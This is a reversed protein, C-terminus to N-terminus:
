RIRYVMMTHALVTDPEQNRLTALPDGPLYVGHLNTASVVIWEPTVGPDPGPSRLPFFSPMPVYDMGYGAPIASGFYSLYIRDVNEARMWDRVALLGQGWDLSSDLLLRHGEDRGGGYESTYALFHPYYSLVSAGQWVLLAVLLARVPRGVM